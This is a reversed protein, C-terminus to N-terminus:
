GKGDKVSVEALLDLYKSEIQKIIKEKINELAEHGIENLLDPDILYSNEFSVDLEFKVKELILELIRDRLVEVREEGLLEILPTVKEISNM